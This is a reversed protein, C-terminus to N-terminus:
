ASRSQLEDRFTCKQSVQCKNIRFIHNRTRVDGQLAAQVLPSVQWVTDGDPTTTRRLTLERESMDKYCFLTQVRLGLVSAFARVVATKGVGRAGVVCLDAGAAHDQMDAHAGTLASTM